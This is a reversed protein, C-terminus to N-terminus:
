QANSGCFTLADACAHSTTIAPDAPVRDATRIPVCPASTAEYWFAVNLEELQCVYWNIYAALVCFRLTQNSVTVVAATIVAVIGAAEPFQNKPNAPQFATTEKSNTSALAQAAPLNEETPLAVVQAVQKGPVYEVAPEVDHETQPGDLKEFTVPLEEQM